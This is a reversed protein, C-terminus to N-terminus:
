FAHTRESPMVYRPDPKYEDLAGSHIGDIMNRDKVYTWADCEHGTTSNKVTVAIRRYGKPHQTGEMSDLLELGEDSLEFLEGFVRQGVGPEDLLSPSFWRGGIVLPYASLTRVRAVYVADRM